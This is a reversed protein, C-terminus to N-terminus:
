RYPIYVPSFAQKDELRLELTFRGRLGGRIEKPLSLFVRRGPSM